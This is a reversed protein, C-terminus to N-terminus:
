SHELSSNHIGNFYISFCFTKAPFSFIYFPYPMTLFSFQLLLPFGVPHSLLLPSSIKFIWCLRTPFFFFCSFFDQFCGSLFSMNGRPSCHNLFEWWFGHLWSSFAFNRLTSLSFFQGYGAFINKLSSLSMLVYESSPFSFTNM